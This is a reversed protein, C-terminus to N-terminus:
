GARGAADEGSRFGAEGRGVDFRHTHIGCYQWVRTSVVGPVARIRDNVVTLLEEPTRCVVEALLDHEGTTLVLYILNEIEGLEDAISRVDGHTAIAVMAQMPYGLAAPDSVGVVQLVELEILRQVRLRVAPASLGVQPAMAAYSARGDESLLALLRRDVEDLGAPGTVGLRRM